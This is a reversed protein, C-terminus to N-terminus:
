RPAGSRRRRSRCRCPRQHVTQEGVIERGSRKRRSRPRRMTSRAGASFSRSIASAPPAPRPRASAAQAPRASHALRSSSGRVSAAWASPACRRARRAGEHRRHMEGRGEHAIGVVEIAAAVDVAPGVVLRHALGLRHDAREFARGRREHEARAHRRRDREEQAEARRARRRAAGHHVPRKRLQSAFSAGAEAKRTSKTSVSSKRRERPRHLRALRLEYPELRRAIRQPADAVDCARGRDGVRRARSERDVRGARRRDEGPREREAGVDDHMRRGFVEVAMGVHDRAREAERAVVRKALPRAVIRLACPRM